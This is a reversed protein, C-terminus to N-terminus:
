GPVGSAKFSKIIFVPHSFEMSNIKVNRMEFHGTIEVPMTFKMGKIRYSRQYSLIQMRLADNPTDWVYGDAHEPRLVSGKTQLEFAADKFTQDENLPYRLGVPAQDSTAQVNAIQDSCSDAHSLPAMCFPLLFFVARM